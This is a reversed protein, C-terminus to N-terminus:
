RRLRNSDHTDLLDGLRKPHGLDRERLSKEQPVLGPCLKNLM